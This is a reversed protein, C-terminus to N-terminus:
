AAHRERNRRPAGGKRANGGNGGNGGAAAGPRKKFRSTKPKASDGQKENAKGAFAAGDRKAGSRKPGGRKPGGSRGGRGKRQPGASKGRGSLPLKEFSVHFPQEEDVEIAIGIVREIDRLLPADGPDCFSIAIGSQGARGTRGVRHVYNEPEMPLDFNVVHSVGDVDIGRAALDTAVLVSLRGSRFGKLIKERVKQRKDGHIADAGIGERDLQKALRDAGRKTRTFILTKETKERKLYDLLLNRKDAQAVAMMKHDITEAVTSQQAIEVRVPNNLLETALKGIKDNMTASFMVTQHEDDLAAAIERVDRIFGMDLMRDAEDLIFTRTEDFRINKQEVHDMLRGPTAILVDVGRRLGNIQPGYPLGGAIVLHTMKTGRAFVSIAQGIQQALERTPALILAKACKSSPKSPADFLINLLPLAFAATKGGGTPAIGMLDRRQLLAPITQLQIATPTTFGQKEVAHLLPTALGLGDFQTM